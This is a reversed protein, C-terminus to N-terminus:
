ILTSISPKFDELQYCILSTIMHVFANRMSRHRSHEFRGLLKIKGIVTEILSRKLLMAKDELSMLINKMGRKLRTILQIGQKTLDATFEKGIYGRDAFIKGSLGKTMAQLGKRDDQNGPTFHVKILEGSPNIVIHLKFGFFWGKTTKSKAAINAFTKHRKERYSKCVAISTSDVFSVDGCKAMLQKLLSLVIPATSPILKVFQTYSVVNFDKMYKGLVQTLYFHKFCDYQSVHFLLLITVVESLHM